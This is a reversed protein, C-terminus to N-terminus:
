VYVAGREWSAVEQQKAALEEVCSHPAANELSQWLRHEQSM